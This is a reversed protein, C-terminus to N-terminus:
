GFVLQRTLSLLLLRVFDIDLGRLVGFSILLAFHLDLSILAAWLGNVSQHLVILFHYRTIIELRKEALLAM